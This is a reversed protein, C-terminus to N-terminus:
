GRGVTEKVVSSSGGDPVQPRRARAPVSFMRSIDGSAYEQDEKEEIVNRPIAPFIKGPGANAVFPETYVRAACVLCTAQVLPSPDKAQGQMRHVTRLSVGLNGCSPCQMRTSYPLKKLKPPPIVLKAAWIMALKIWVFLM